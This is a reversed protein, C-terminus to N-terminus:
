RVSVKWFSNTRWQDFMGSSSGRGTYLFVSIGHWPKDHDFELVFNGHWKRDKRTEQELRIVDETIKGYQDPSAANIRFHTCGFAAHKVPCEKLGNEQVLRPVIWERVNKEHAFEWYRYEKRYSSGVVIYVFGKFALIMLIQVILVTNLVLLSGLAINVGRSNLFGGPTNQKM